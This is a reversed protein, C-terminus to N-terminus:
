LYFTNSPLTTVKSLDKDGGISFLIVIIVSLNVAIDTILRWSVERYEILDDLLTSAKAGM